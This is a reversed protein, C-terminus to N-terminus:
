KQISISIREFNSEKYFIAGAFICNKEENENRVQIYIYFFDEM